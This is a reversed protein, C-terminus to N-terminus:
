RDIVVAGLRSFTNTVEDEPQAKTVVMLPLGNALREVHEIGKVVLYKIGYAM